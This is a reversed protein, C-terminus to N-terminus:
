NELSRPSARDAPEGRYALEFPGDSLMLCWRCRRVILGSCEVREEHHRGLRCLIARLFRPM